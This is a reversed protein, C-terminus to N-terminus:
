EPVVAEGGAPTVLSWYVHERVAASMLRTSGDLYTVVMCGPYPSQAIRPNAKLPRPAAEFTTHRSSALTQDNARVPVVDLFAPDAFAPRRAWGVTMDPRRIRPDYLPGEHFTYKYDVMESDRENSRDIRAYHEALAITNSCGDGVSGLAPNGM